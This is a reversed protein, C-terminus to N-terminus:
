VGINLPSIQLAVSAGYRKERMEMRIAGAGNFDSVLPPRALSMSHIVGFGAPGLQPLEVEAPQLADVVLAPLETVGAALAGVVRHYGNRLYYRGAFSMVQILNIHKPPEIVIRGREAETRVTLGALHPSSSTIYIPGLPPIFTIEAPVSWEDPLAYNILGEEDHPIDEEQSNVFVQLAVLSELRVWAFRHPTQMTSAFIEDREFRAQVAPDLPRVETAFDLHPPLPGVAARAQSALEFLAARAEANLSSLHEQAFGMFHAEDMFGALVNQPQFSRTVVGRRARVGRVSDEEPMPSGKVLGWPLSAVHM